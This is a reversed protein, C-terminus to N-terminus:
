SVKQQTLANNLLFILELVSRFNQERKEDLWAISGQWSANQRFLVRLAFTALNGEQYTIEPPGTTREPPATFTRITTFAKPFEMGDLVQEVELIFGSLSQFAVSEQLLPNYIRGRLVGYGYSDVCIFITRYEETWTRNTM